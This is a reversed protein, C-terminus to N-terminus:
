ISSNKFVTEEVIVLFTAHKVIIFDNHNSERTATTKYSNDKMLWLSVCVIFAKQIVLLMEIHM